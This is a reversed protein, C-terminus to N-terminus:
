FSGLWDTVLLPCTPGELPGLFRCPSEKRPPHSSHDQGPQQKQKNANAAFMRWSLDGKGFSLYAKRFALPSILTQINTAQSGSSPKPLVVPACCINPRPIGVAGSSKSGSRSGEPSGGENKLWQISRCLNRSTCRLKRQAFAGHAPVGEACSTGRRGEARTVAVQTGTNSRPRPGRAALHDVLHVNSATKRAM